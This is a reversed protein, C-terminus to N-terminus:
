ETLLKNCYNLLLKLERSSAKNYRIGKASLFSRIEKRQEKSFSNLFHRKRTVDQYKGNQLMYKGNQVSSYKGYPSANDYKDIFKKSYHRYYSLTGESIKEYFGKEKELNSVHRSNIFLRDTLRFSDLQNRNLQIMKYVDEDFAAKLVVADELLNYKIQQNHFQKGLIYLTADYWQDDLLYPHGKIMPNPFQYVYGNILRDDLGYYDDVKSLFNQYSTNENQSFSQSIASFVFLLLMAIVKLFSPKM